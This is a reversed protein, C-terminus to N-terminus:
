GLDRRVILRPHGGSRSGTVVVEYFGAARFMAATGTYAAADSLHQEENAVPYAELTAVGREAAYRLAGRLLGTGVGAGRYAQGVFFCVISWVPRDDVPGLTRSRQLRPFDERPGLCIWGVPRGDRYGLLGPVADRAVLAHLEDRNRAASSRSFDGATMRWFMCWCGYCAGSKGFLTVLDDWRGATVPQVDLDGDPAPPDPTSNDM